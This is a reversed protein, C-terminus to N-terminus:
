AHVRQLFLRATDPSIAQGVTPVGLNLESLDFRYIFVACSM